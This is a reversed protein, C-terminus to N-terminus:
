VQIYVRKHVTPTWFNFGILQLKGDVKKGLNRRISHISGRYLYGANELSSNHIRDFMSKSMAKTTVGESETVKRLIPLAEAAEDWRLPLENQGTPIKQQWLDEMSSFGFLANDVIAMVLLLAGDNYM